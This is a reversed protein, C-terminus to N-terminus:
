KDTACKTHKASPNEYLHGTDESNQVAIKLLVFLFHTLTWGPFNKVLHVVVLWFFYRCRCSNYTYISWIVLIERFKLVELSHHMLGTFRESTYTSVKDTLNRKKTWIEKKTIEHYIDEMQVHNNVNPVRRVASTARCNRKNANVYKWPLRDHLLAPVRNLLTSSALYHAGIHVETHKYIILKKIHEPVYELTHLFNIRAASVNKWRSM